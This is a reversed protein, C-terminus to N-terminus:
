LVSSVNNSHRRAATQFSGGWEPPCYIPILIERAGCM